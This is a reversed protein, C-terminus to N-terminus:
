GIITYCALVVLWQFSLKDLYVRTEITVVFGCQLHRICYFSCKSVYWIMAIYM